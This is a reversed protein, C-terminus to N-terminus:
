HRISGTSLTKGTSPSPGSPSLKRSAAPSGAGSWFRLAPRSCPSDRHFRM